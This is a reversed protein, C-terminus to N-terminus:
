RLHPVSPSSVLCTNSCTFGMFVLLKGRVLKFLYCMSAPWGYRITLKVKCTIFLVFFWIEIKIVLICQLNAQLSITELVRKRMSTVGEQCRGHRCIIKWWRCYHFGGWVGEMDAFAGFILSSLLLINNMMKYAFIKGGEMTEMDASGFMLSASWITIMWLM